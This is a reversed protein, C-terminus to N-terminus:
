SATSSKRWLTSYSATTSCPQVADRSKRLYSVIPARLENTAQSSM